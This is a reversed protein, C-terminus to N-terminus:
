FINESEATHVRRQVDSIDSELIIVRSDRINGEINSLTSYALTEYTNTSNGINSATDSINGIRNAKLNALQAIGTSTVIGSLIGGYIMNLPPVLGSKVGSVFASMAGSITDAIINYRQINKYQKSNEDYNSQIENLLGGINSQISQYANFYNEQMAIKKNVENEAIALREASYQQELETRQLDIDLVALNYDKAIQLLTQKHLRELDQIKKDYEVKSLVEKEKELAELERQFTKNEIATDREKNAKLVELQENLKNKEINILKDLNAIALQEERENQLLMENYIAFGSQKLLELRKNNYNTTLAELDEIQQQLRKKEDIVAIGSQEALIARQRILNAQFQVLTKNAELISQESNIKDIEKFLPNRGYLAILQNQYKTQLELEKKLYTEEDILNKSYNLKNLAQEKALNDKIDNIQKQYEKENAQKREEAKKDEEAQRQKDINDIAQYANLMDTNVLSFIRKRSAELNALAQEYEDTGEKITSLEVKLIKANKVEIEYQEKYLEIRKRMYDQYLSLFPETQKQEETYTDLRAQEIDLEKQKDEILKNNWEVRQKDRKIEEESIRKNYNKISDLTKIMKDLEANYAKANEVYGFTNQKNANANNDVSQQLNENIANRAEIRAEKAKAIFKSVLTIATTIATVILTFPNALAFSKLASGLKKIGGIFLTSAKSAGSLATKQKNISLANSENAVTNKQTEITQEKEALIEEKRASTLGKIKLWLGNFNKEADDLASLGQVIAMLSQVKLMAQQAEDSSVGMLNMVGNVASISAVLGTSVKTISALTDGYDQSAIKANEQIEQATHLANGLETLKANYEATGEELGEIELKLSKIQEKLSKINKQSKDTKVELIEIKTLNNSM